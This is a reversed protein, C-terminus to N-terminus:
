ETFRRIWGSSLFIRVLFLETNPCKGRLAATCSYIPSYLVKLTMSAKKISTTSTQWILTLQSFIAPESGTIQIQHDSSNCRKKLYYSRVNTADFTNTLNTKRTFLHWPNTVLTWVKYACCKQVHLQINNRFEWSRLSLHWKYFKEPSQLAIHQVSLAFFICTTLCPSSKLTQTSIRKEYPLLM